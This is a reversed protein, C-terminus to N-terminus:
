EFSDEDSSGSSDVPKKKTIGAYSPSLNDRIPSLVKQLDGASHLDSSVERAQALSDSIITPAVDQEELKLMDGEELTPVEPPYLVSFQNSNEITKKGATLDGKM